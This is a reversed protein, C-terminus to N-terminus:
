EPGRIACSPKGGSSRPRHSVAMLRAFVQTMCAVRNTVQMNIAVDRSTAHLALAEAVQLAGDGAAELADALPPADEDEALLQCASPSPPASSEIPHRPLAQVAAGCSRTFGSAVLARAAGIHSERQPGIPIHARRFEVRRTPFVIGISSCHTVCTKVTAAARWRWQGYRGPMCMACPRTGPQSRPYPRPYARLIATSPEATDDTQASAPVALRAEGVPFAPDTVDSRDLM